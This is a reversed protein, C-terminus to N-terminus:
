QSAKKDGTETSRGASETKKGNADVKKDKSLYKDFWDACTVMDDAIDPWGHKAGKKVILEVPVGVEKLKDRIEESQQLPVLQDKDGHILLTPPDDPTVFTIPSISRSIERQKEQDAVPVYLKKEDDFVRYDVAATFPKQFSRALMERGKAGYNLLDTPPFFAAVAQVRSSVRDIPDKADSNGLDGAMAQMLSLHGGASAGMIAFREADVGYDAAHYRIFRVARNIDEVIEPVTFKPQSGHVVAFVTYGRRTFTKFIGMGNMLDITEPKSFWGGSCIAIVAAGNANKGPKFVDMTLALGAKRGYIVDRTRTFSPVEDARVLGASLLAAASLVGTVVWTRM